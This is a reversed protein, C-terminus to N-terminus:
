DIRVKINQSTNMSYRSLRFCRARRMMTASIDEDHGVNSSEMATPGSVTSGVWVTSGLSHVVRGDRRSIAVPAAGGHKALDCLTRDELMVVLRRGSYLDNLLRGSISKENKDPQTTNPAKTITSTAITPGRCLAIDLISRGKRAYNVQVLVPRSGSSTDYDQVCEGIAVSLVGPEAVSFQVTEVKIQNSYQSSSSTQSTRGAASNSIKIESVVSDM